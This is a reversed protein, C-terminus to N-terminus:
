ERAGRIVRFNKRREPASPVPAIPQTALAADILDGIAWTRDAVGLAKAPTTKLAEHVRCLNYHAYLEGDKTRVLLISQGVIDLVIHDGPLLVEETRAACFWERRLIQAQDAVWSEPTLYASSPLSREMAGINTAM